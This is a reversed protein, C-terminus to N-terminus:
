HATSADAACEVQWASLAGPQWHPILIRDGETLLDNMFVPTETEDFILTTENFQATNERWFSVLGPWQSIVYGGAVPGIGDANDLGTLLQTLSRDDLDVALIDGASMTTVLLRNDEVFLGNVGALAADELWVSVVGDELAYIRSNASDSVLVRDGLVAVDNLFGAGPMPYDAMREGTGLDIEVLRDIDSVFLHGDHLAMGKPANFGTVWHRETLAGDFSVRALYGAGNREAAEGAINSVIYGGRGDAIVSEPAELGDLRWIEQFEPAQGASCVQVGMALAIFWASM